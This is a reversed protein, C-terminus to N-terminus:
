NAQIENWGTLLFRGNAALRGLAEDYHFNYHGHMHVSNVLMCGVFDIPNNGSGNLYIDAYPAVFVGAFTGNGNFQFSTVTPAAWLIFDQALGPQNVFANGSIFCSTGGVYANVSGGPAITFSDNGNMTWGNPLVLNVPGLVITSGNLDNTGVVYNGASLVHDYYNTTLVVNAGNGSTTVVTGSTPTLYGTTNPLSTVPFTFNSDHSYWAPTGGSEIGNNSNQWSHAGVGGNPGVYLTGGPGTAVHGYINANGLSISDVITDNSAVDGNDGTKHPDYQGNSSLNPNGSDFSDTMVNNGALDITLKAVMAKTFLKSRSATCRVTRTCAPIGLSGYVPNAFFSPQINQAYIPSTVYGRSVITPNNPDTLADITVTYSNGGPLSRTRSYLTGDFYWGDASLNSSNANLQALGEEIGAEVVAIAMNWAQSRASLFNQQEVLSLYGTVSLCLITAIVLAVIITSARKKTKPSVNTKM